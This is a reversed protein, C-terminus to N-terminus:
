NENNKRERQTWNKGLPWANAVPDSSAVQLSNSILASWTFLVVLGAHHARILIGYYAWIVSTLPNYMTPTRLACLEFLPGKLAIPIYKLWKHPVGQIELGILSSL